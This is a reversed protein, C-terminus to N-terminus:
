GNRHHLASLIHLIIPPSAVQFFMEHTAVRDNSNGLAVKVSAFIMSNGNPDDIDEAIVCRCCHLNFNSRISREIRTISTISIIQLIEDFDTFIKGFMSNLRIRDRAAYSLPLAGAGTKTVLRSTVRNLDPDYFRVANKNANWRSM